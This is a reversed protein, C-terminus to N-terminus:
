EGKKLFTSLKLILERTAKIDNIADHADFNINFFKCVESLHYSPFKIIENYELLGLMTIPDITHYDFFSGYYTDNNKLFFNKLFDIDFRVNYGAPHFKDQKNYKDIYKYLIKIIKKYIIQPQEFSKITEINMKNVNLAEQNIDDYSFPQIKFEGEEKIEKDIEVIYAFQIMDNKIPDLGTTETDFWFVKM